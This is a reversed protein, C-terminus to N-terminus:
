GKGAKPGDGREARERRGLEGARRGCSRECGALLAFRRRQTATDEGIRIRGIHWGREHSKGLPFPQTPGERPPIRPTHNEKVRTQSVWQKRTTCSSRIALESAIIKRM